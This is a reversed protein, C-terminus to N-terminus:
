QIYETVDIRNHELVTTLRNIAKELDGAKYSEIAKNAFEPNLGSTIYKDVLGQYRWNLTQKYPDEENTFNRSDIGELLKEYNYVFNGKANERRIQEWDSPVLKTINDYGQQGTTSQRNAFNQADQSETSGTEFSYKMINYEEPGKYLNADSINMNYFQAAADRSGMVSTLDEIISASDNGYISKLKSLYEKAITPSIKGRSMLTRINTLRDGKVYSNGLESKLTNDNIANVAQYLLVDNVSGLDTANAVGQSLSKVKDLGAKGSWFPDNKGDKTTANTFAALTNTLDKTSVMFGKSIGTSVSEQLGEILEQMQGDTFGLSQSSNITRYVDNINGGYRNIEGLLMSTSGFDAGTGKHIRGANQVLKIAGELNNSYGYKSMQAVM